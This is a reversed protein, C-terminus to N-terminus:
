ILKDQKNSGMSKGIHKFARETAMRGRPTREIFGLRILYPEYVEEITNADESMSASLTNLGVPNGSFKLVLTEILKIDEGGM